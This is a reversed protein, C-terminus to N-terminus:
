EARELNSLNELNFSAESSGAAAASRFAREADAIRGELVAVIGTNNLAAASNGAKRLYDKATQMDGRRIAVAAMNSNAVQDSPYNAAAVRFVDAFEPSDAPYTEAIQYLEYLSLYRPNSKIIEKGQEVTFPMVVYNITYEVRRLGPYVEKLLMNYTAGNDIARIKADRADPEPTSSIVQLVQTRHAIDSSTVWRAVSDWDEAVHEIRIVSNDINYRSQVLSSLAEVRNRSLRDNSSYSGEPSAYGRFTVGTIKLDSNRTIRETFRYISDLEAANDWLASKIEYKGVEFRVRATMNEYRAKEAEVEPVIMAVKPAVPAHISGVYLPYEMSGGCISWLKGDLMVSAGSMWSQYPVESIYEVIMAQSSTEGRRIERKHRRMEKKTFVKEAHPTNEYAAYFKENREMYRAADQALFVVPALSMTDRGKVIVPVATYGENRSLVLNKYDLAFGILVVDGSRAVESKVVNVPTGPNKVNDKANAGAAGLLAMVVLM